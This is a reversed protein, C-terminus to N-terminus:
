QGVLGPPKALTGHGLNEGLHRVLVGVEVEVNRQLAQWLTSVERREPLADLGDDASDASNLPHLALAPILCGM